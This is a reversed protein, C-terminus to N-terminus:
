GICPFLLAWFNGKQKNTRVPQHISKELYSKIGIARDNMSDDPGTELSRSDDMAYVDNWMWIVDGDKSSPHREHWSRYNLIELNLDLLIQLIQPLSGWTAHSKIQIHWCPVRSLEVSEAFASEVDGKGLTVEDQYPFIALTTRLLLPSLITSLLIALVASAYLEASVLENTVGFVAIVFAFEAEGAMSFGVVACDRWHNKGDLKPTLLPGVALKGCLAVMLVLGNWLVTGSGFLSVPVQFGITAAFFFRMLWQIIRKFQCSFHEGLKDNRCNSLGALFAGLLYSAQTFFTAPLLALLLVMMVILAQVSQSEDTDGSPLCSGIRGKEKVRETGTQWCRRLKDTLKPMVHLAAAGGVAFWLLASVIPVVIGAVSVDGTLAGLQSLVILAIMDDVIAAAVILQGIPKRLVGCPGLVGMAIGASTPGFCCGTAIATKADYGLAVTLGIGIGIPLISGVIAIWVGRPGILRLIGIDMELGAQLILLVLGVNGLLVFTFSTDPLVDWGEPGFAIGVLIQGVLPPVIRLWRRCIVDGAIYLSVFFLLAAYLEQFTSPVGSFIQENESSTTIEAM